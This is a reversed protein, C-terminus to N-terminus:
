NSNRNSRPTFGYINHFCRSFHSATNFGCAFAIEAISLNTQQLLRKARELRIKLYYRRPSIGLHQYFLRELQRCSIGAISAIEDRPITKECNDEMASIAKVLKQHNVQLRVRVPLINNNDDYHRKKEQIFQECIDDALQTGHKEKIIRVSMEFAATSGCCTLRNRDCEYLSARSDLEPFNERFADLNEWHITCRYGNLVGARALLYSGTCVAGIYNDSRGMRQILNLARKDNFQHINAGGCVFLNDMPITDDIASNINSTVQVSINGSSSVAEGDVSMLHWQYLTNDSLRNAMRFPEILSSFPLMSFNPILLLTLQDPKGTALPKLSISM